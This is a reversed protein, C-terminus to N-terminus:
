DYGFTSRSGRLDMQGMRAALSQGHDQRDWDREGSGDLFPSAAREAQTKKSKHSSDWGARASELTEGGPLRVDAELTESIDRLLVDMPCIYAVKKRESWALVHGCVRGNEQEV